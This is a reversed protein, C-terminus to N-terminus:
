WFTHFSILLRLINSIVRYGLNRIATESTNTIFTLRWLPRRWNQRQTFQVKYLIYLNNASLHRINSGDKGAFVTLLQLLILKHEHAKNILLLVYWILFVQFTKSHSAPSPHLLDTPGITRSIFFFHLTLSSLFIRCVIFLLCTLQIPWM